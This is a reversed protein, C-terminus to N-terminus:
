KNTVSVVEIDFILEARPPIQPPYGKEGYALHDPIILKRKGGKHMGVLGEHWGKIVSSVGVKVKFPSKGVNSDFQDGNQLKGTYFVEVESGIKVKDGGGIRQDIIKLGSETTVTKQQDKPVDQNPKDEVVPVPEVSSSKAMTPQPKPRNGLLEPRVFSEDDTAGQRMTLLVALGGLIVVILLVFLVEQKVGGHRQM